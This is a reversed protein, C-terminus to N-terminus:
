ITGHDIALRTMIGLEAARSQVRAQLDEVVAKRRSPGSGLVNISFGDHQWIMLRFLPRERDAEEMASKIVPALLLWEYSFLLQSIINSPELV